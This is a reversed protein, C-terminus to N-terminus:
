FSFLEQVSFKLTVFAKIKRLKPLSKLVIMGDGALYM